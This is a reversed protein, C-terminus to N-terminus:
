RRALIATVTSGVALAEEEEESVPAVRSIVVRRTMAAPTDDATVEAYTAQRAAAASSTLM